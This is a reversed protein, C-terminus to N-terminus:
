KKEDGWNSYKKTNIPNYNVKGKILNIFLKDLSEVLMPRKEKFLSESKKRYKVLEEDTKCNAMADELYWYRIHVIILKDILESFTDSYVSDYEPFKNEKLIEEVRSKIADDFIKGLSKM